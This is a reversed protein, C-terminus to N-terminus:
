GMWLMRIHVILILAGDGVSVRGAEPDRMMKEFRTPELLGRQPWRGSRRRDLCWSIRWILCQQGTRIWSPSGIQLEKMGNIVWAALTALDNPMLNSDQKPYISDNM